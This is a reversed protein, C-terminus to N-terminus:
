KNEAFENLKNIVYEQEARKLEPYMPLSVVERALLDTNPLKDKSYKMLLGNKHASPFYHIGLFIKNKKMFSILKKRHKVRVVYLHYAPSTNDQDKFVKYYPSLKIKYINSIKVRKKIETKVTKLRHSLFAAHLEDLRSNFGGDISVTRKSNWGYQRLAILKKMLVKNSVWVGGGDGLTNLNKTPFFSFCGADALTGTYKEKIQTGFSQACDEILKINKKNLFKRIKNIDVAYGYLHVAIVASFKDKKIIKKIIELTMVPRNLDVDIFYPICNARLIGMISAPATHAPVIIKTGEKIDLCKIALTLADTGNACSVFYGKKSLLKSIKNEFNRVADSLIYSKSDIVKALINSLYKKNKVFYKSPDNFLINM